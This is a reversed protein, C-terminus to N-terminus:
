PLTIELCSGVHKLLCLKQFTEQEAERWCKALRRCRARFYIYYYYVTYVTNM